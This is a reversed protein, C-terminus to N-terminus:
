YFLNVDPVLKFKSYPTPQIKLFIKFEKNKLPGLNGLNIVGINLIEDYESLLMGLIKINNISINRKNLITGSLIYFNGEKQINVNQFDLEINDSSIKPKIWNSRKIEVDVKYNLYKLPLGEFIIYKRQGPNLFSIKEQELLVIDDKIIKIKLTFNDLGYDYNKNLIVVLIDLVGRFDFKKITEIEPEKLEFFRCPICPGGCDIGIEGQNQIGDFCSPKEKKLSYIFFIFVLFILFLFFTIQIRKKVRWSM